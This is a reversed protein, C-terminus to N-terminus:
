NPLAASPTDPSPEDAGSDAADPTAVPTQALQDILKAVDADFAARHRRPIGPGRAMKMRMPDIYKGRKKVSFHLHPGTARGTSGVYGIVTKQKVRMGVKQGRRFKSLHMYVTKYGNGHDLIVRNGAAGGRGRAVIKGSAAAWVATGRPAAYDVGLHAVRRHLVPHMRRRDFKSSVRSFKLPTKLFMKAISRGKEDFYGRTKGDDSSWYFARYTGAKGSYTAARVKRYQLFDGELYEKEVLLKFTDGKHQDIYFNLDYAFVDVMFAVLRVDEGVEKLAHYLSARITGAVATLIVETKSELKEGRMTGDRNRTARVRDVRSLEYEFVDMVEAATYHLRYKQGLRIKRFDMHPELATLVADADRASLGHRRLIRGLSDGKKVEGNQWRGENEAPEDGEPVAGRANTKAKDGAAVVHGAEAAMAAQRVEPISTGDRWLFVWLNVGILVALVGAVYLPAANIRGRVPRRTRRRRPM